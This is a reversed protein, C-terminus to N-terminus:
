TLCCFTSPNVPDVSGTPQGGSATCTGPQYTLGIVTKSGLATGAPLDHCYPADSAIPDLSEPISCAGDSFVALSATCKNGSPTGCACATCARTDSFGGYVLVKNPYTDPCAQDGASYICMRFHPAIASVCTQGHDTCAGLPDLTGRCALVASMWSPDPFDQPGVVSPTCGQETM